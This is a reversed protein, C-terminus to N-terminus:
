ISILNINFSVALKSFFLSALINLLSDLIDIRQINNREVIDCIYTKEFLQKFFFFICLIAFKNNLTKHFSILIQIRQLDTYNYATKYHIKLYRNHNIYTLYLPFM